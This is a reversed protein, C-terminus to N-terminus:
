ARGLAVPFGGADVALGDLERVLVAALATVVALASERQEVHVPSPREREAAAPDPPSWRVRCTVRAGWRAVLAPLAGAEEVMVEVVGGDSPAAAARGAGEPPPPAVLQVALAYADLVDPGATAAADRADLAAHLRDRQAPTLPSDLEALTAMAEPRVGAWPAGGTAPGLGPCVPALLALAREPEVWSRVHVALEPWARPDPELVVGSGAVRVAGGLRRALGLVLDVARREARVPLGGPFARALGDRDTLWPLPPGEREAPCDLAWALRWPSPVGATAAAGADLLLPGALAAHRGLRLGDGAHTAADPHHAFVLEGVARESTADPLLLLHHGLLARGAERGTLAGRSPGAM